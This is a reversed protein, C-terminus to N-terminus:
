QLNPLISAVLAKGKLVSEAKARAADLVTQLATQLEAASMGAVADVGDEAGVTISTAYSLAKGATSNLKLVVQGNSAFVVDVNHTIEGNTSVM